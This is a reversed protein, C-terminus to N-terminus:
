MPPMNKRETLIVSATIKEPFWVNVWMQITISYYLNIKMLEPIHRDVRSHTEPKDDTEKDTAVQWKVKKGKSIQKLTSRGEARIKRSHFLIIKYENADDAVSFSEFSLYARPASIAKIFILM